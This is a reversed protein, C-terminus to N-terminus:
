NTPAGPAAKKEAEEVAAQQAVAAVSAKAIQEQLMEVKGQLKAASQLATSTEKRADVLEAEVRVVREGCRMIEEAARKRQEEHFENAAEAKAKVTALEGAIREREARVQDRSAEMAALAQKHEEAAKASAQKQAALDSKIQTGEERLLNTQKESAALRERLKAIEVAHAQTTTNAQTLEAQLSSAQQQCVDLKQELDEVTETADALEREALQRQEGATKVVENVMREASKTAKSNLDAALASIRGALEKSVSEVVQVVEIPLQIEQEIVQDVTTAQHEEWVQKLRTPNGGGVKQRLAFGTVNRGAAQLDLGAQIVSENTFEVPRM